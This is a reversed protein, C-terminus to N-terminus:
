RCIWGIGASLRVAKWRKKLEQKNGIRRCRQQVSTYVASLPKPHTRQVLSQRRASGVPRHLIEAVYGRQALLPVEPTNEFTAYINM